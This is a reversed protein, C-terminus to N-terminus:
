NVEFFEPKEWIYVVFGLIPKALINSLAIKYNKVQTFHESNKAGTKYDIVVWFDNCELLLDVIKLDGNFVFPQEKYIKTTLALLSAFIEDTLFSHLKEFISEFAGNTLFHHYKNRIIEFSKEFSEIKFEDMNELIKHVVIGYYESIFDENMAYKTSKVKQKQVIPNCPEFTKMVDQPKNSSVSLEGIECVELNLISFQSNKQNKAIFMNTKARTLAVYLVNLLDDRQLNKENSLAKEYELDFNQLNKSRFFVSRLKVGDYDFLLSSSKNNPKKFKDVVIVNEFELGKSKFITMVSIANKQSNSFVVDCDDINYVFDVIDKYNECVSLFSMVREDLLHYHIAIKLVLSKLSDFNKYLNQETAFDFGALFNFNELYIRNDFFWYKILNIIAQINKQNILLNTMETSMAVQPAHEKFHEFIDIAESNTFTLIAIDDALIGIELLNLVKKEIRKLWNKEVEFVEVKGITKSNYSQNFYEYNDIKSYNENVFEVVTKSSRYNVSLEEKAIVKFENAVSDFLEKKGNRFRYIAQKTDGVYFFSKFEYSDGAVVEAILPKLIKYQILSTDQFEDILLHNFKADLRFHLFDKDIKTSLLEYVKNSVDNFEFSNELICFKTKFIKYEEFLGISYNLKYSSNLIVFDKALNKLEVFLNQLKENQLTSFYKYNQLEYKALWTSSKEFFSEVSDYDVASIARKDLNKIKLIESKFELCLELLKFKTEFIKNKDVDQIKLTENKEELLRFIELLSNMSIGSFYVFEIFNALNDNDLSRLFKYLFYNINIAKIKYDDSVKAYGSFEKLIMNVFKDITYINVSSDLFDSVIKSKAELIDNKSKQLNQCIAMLYDDRSDLNLLTEIIRSKMENAAKNTFTLCLIENAKAGNLLLSIYRVALAFTKGSGASAKLCLYRKM